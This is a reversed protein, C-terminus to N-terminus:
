CCWEMACWLWCMFDDCLVMFMCFDVWIMVYAWFRVSKMEGFGFGFRGLCYRVLLLLLMRMRWCLVFGFRFLLLFSSSLGFQNFRWRWFSVSDTYFFFTSPLLREKKRKKKEFFNRFRFCLDLGNQTRKPFELSPNYCGTKGVYFNRFCNDSYAFM